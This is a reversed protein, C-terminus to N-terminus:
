SHENRPSHSRVYGGEYSLCHSCRREDGVGQANRKRLPDHPLKMVPFGWQNWSILDPYPSCPFPEFATLNSLAAMYWGALVLGLSSECTGPSDSTHTMPPIESSSTVGGKKADERRYHYIHSHYGPSCSPWLRKKTIGICFYIYVFKM